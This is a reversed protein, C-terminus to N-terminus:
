HGGGGGMAAPQRMLVALGVCGLFIVTLALFVDALALVKAQRRVMLAIQKTAALEADSGRAAMAPTMESLREDAVERGWIM